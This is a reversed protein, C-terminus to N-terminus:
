LECEEPCECEVLRAVALAQIHKFTGLHLQEPLCCYVDFMYMYIPSKPERYQGIDIDERVLSPM